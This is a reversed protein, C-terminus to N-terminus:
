CCSVLVLQKRCYHNCDIIPDNPGEPADQHDASNCITSAVLTRHNHQKNLSSNKAISHMSKGAPFKCNALFESREKDCAAGGSNDDPVMKNVPWVCWSRAKLRLIELIFKV